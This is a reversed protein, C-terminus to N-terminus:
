SLDKRALASWSPDACSSPVSAKTAGDGAGKAKAIGWEKIVVSRGEEM